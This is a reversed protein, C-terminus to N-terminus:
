RGAVLQWVEGTNWQEGEERVCHVASAGALWGAGRSRAEVPVASAVMGLMYNSLRLLRHALVVVRRRVGRAVYGVTTSGAVLRRAACARIASARSCRGAGSATGSATGWAPGARGRFADRLAGSKRTERWVHREATSLARKQAMRSFRSGGSFTM